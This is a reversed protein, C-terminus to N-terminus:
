APKVGRVSMFPGFWHNGIQLMFGIKEGNPYHITVTRVYRRKMNM